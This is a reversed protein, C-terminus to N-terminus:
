KKLELEGSANIEVPIPDRKVADVMKEIMKAQFHLTYNMRDNDTLIAIITKLPYEVKIDVPVEVTETSRPKIVVTKDITGESKLENEIHLQYHIDYLQLNINQGGNIIELLITTNLVKETVNYKKREVKLVKIKPPVPVPIRVSKNYPLKVHGFITNYIIYCSTTLDTSDVGELGSLIQKLKKRSLDVPLQLTDIQYRQQKLNVPILEKILLQDHLSIEFSASDITLKYPSKNQVIVDIKTQVSDNKVDANIYTIRSLDPLVLYIAKKPNFVFFLVVVIILIILFITLFIKFGKSRTM